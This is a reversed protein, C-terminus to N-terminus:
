PAGSASIAREDAHLAARAQWGQWRDHVAASTYTAGERLGKPSFEYRDAHWAEFLAREDAQAGPPTARERARQLAAARRPDAEVKALYAAAPEGEPAADPARYEAIFERLRVIFVSNADTDSLYDYAERLLELAELAQERTPKDAM